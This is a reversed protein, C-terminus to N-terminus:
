FTGPTGAPKFGDPRNLINLFTKYDVSHRRLIQTTAHPLLVSLRSGGCVSDDASHNPQELVRSRVKGHHGQSSRRLRPKHRTRGLHEYFIALCRGSCVALERRIM